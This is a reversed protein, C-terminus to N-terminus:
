EQVTRQWIEVQGQLSGHNPRAFVSMFLFLALTLAPEEM